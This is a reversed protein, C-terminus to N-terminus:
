SDDGVGVEAEGLCKDALLKRVDPCGEGNDRQLNINSKEQPNPIQM